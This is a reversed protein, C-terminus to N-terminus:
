HLSGSHEGAEAADRLKNLEPCEFGCYVLTLFAVWGREDTFAVELPYEAPPAMAAALAQIAEGIAAADETRGLRLAGQQLDALDHLTIRADEATPITTTEM